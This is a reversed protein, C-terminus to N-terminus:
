VLAMNVWGNLEALIVDRLSINPKLDYYYALM